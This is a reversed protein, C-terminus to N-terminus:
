KKQISQLYGTLNQLRVDGFDQDDEIRRFIPGWIPMERSGHIVVGAEEGAITKRVREAPFTGGNRKAILTLNAPSPKLAAAAPGDGKGELGHCSACYSHFLDQGRVSYILTQYDRNPVPASQSFAWVGAFLVVGLTLATVLRYKLDVKM